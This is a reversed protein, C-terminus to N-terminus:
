FVKERKRTSRSSMTDKKTVHDAKTAQVGKLSRFTRGIGLMTDKLVSSEELMWLAYQPPVSRSEVWEAIAKLKLDIVWEYYGRIKDWSGGLQSTVHGLRIWTEARSRDLKLSRELSAIAKRRQGAKEYFTSKKLLALAEAQRLEREEEDEIETYDQLDEDVDIEDDADDNEDTLADDESNGGDVRGTDKGNEKDNQNKESENEGGRKKEGEIAGRKKSNRFARSNYSISKQSRSPNRLNGDHKTKGDVPKPKYVFDVGLLELAPHENTTGFALVKKAYQREADEFRLQQTRLHSRIYNDTMKKRMFLLLGTSTLVIGVLLLMAELYSLNMNSRFLAARFFTGLSLFAVGSFWVPYCSNMRIKFNQGHFLIYTGAILVALGISFVMFTAFPNGVSYWFNKSWDVRIFAKLLPWSIFAAAVAIPVVQGPSLRPWVPRGAAIALASLVVFAACVVLEFDGSPFVAVQIFGVSGIGIGTAGMIVMSLQVNPKTVIGTETESMFFISFMTSVITSIFFAWSFVYFVEIDESIPKSLLTAILLLLLLGVVTLIIVNVLNQEKKIASYDIPIYHMMSRKDIEANLKEPFDLGCRRCRHTGWYVHSGCHPCNLDKYARLYSESKGSSETDAEGGGASKGNVM